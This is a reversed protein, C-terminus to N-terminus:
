SNTNQTSLTLKGRCILIKIEKGDQKSVQSVVIPPPM